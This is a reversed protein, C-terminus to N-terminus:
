KITHKYLTRGDLGPIRETFQGVNAKELATRCMEMKADINDIFHLIEAEVIMPAVPSGWELKGHHSLVMHKLLLVEEGAIGLTKATLEIEEAIMTIHGILKGELSYEPNIPDTYERVKCVDHLIVGAFLLDKSLTPYLNAISKALNLMGYTHYALGSVYNHHMAKAAPFIKFSKEYRSLIDTVISRIKDNKIEQVTETIKSFLEDSSIPASKAFDAVTLDCSYESEINFNTLRLQLKGQYESITGALYIITNPLMTYELQEVSDWVKCEIEGTYDALILTLYPKGNRAIGKNVNKILMYGEVEDGLGYNNIELIGKM